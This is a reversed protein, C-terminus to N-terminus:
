APKANAAPEAAEVAVRNRGNQKAQYLLADARGLLVHAEERAGIRLSTLGFSATIRLVHGGYVIQLDELNRRLKEVLIAASGLATEPFVILFEEGGFRAVWDSGARIERLVRSVERLVQDGTPHGWTDNVRKFHDVDCMVLSLDRGYREARAIEHALREDMHHRNFCGTLADTISLAKIERYATELELTRQAVKAELEETHSRIQRAMSNFTKALQSVEDSGRADAEVSYDGASLLRTKHLLEDLPRIVSRILYRSSLVTFLLVLLILPVITRLQQRIPTEITSFPVTVGVIWPESMSGTLAAVKRAGQFDYERSILTDGPRTNAIDQRLTALKLSRQPVDAFQRTARIRASESDTLDSVTAYRIAPDYHALVVGDRNTLFTQTGSDQRRRIILDIPEPDLKIVMTAGISGGVLLIPSSLYIGPKRSTVGVTWDSVHDLGRMADHFYPRMSYNQGVFAPDTSATCKGQKDLIFVVAIYKSIRSWQKLWANFGIVTVPDDPKKMFSRLEASVVGYRAIDRQGVLFADIENAIERSYNQIHRMELDIAAARDRSYLYATLLSSPLLILVITALALKGALSLRLTPM